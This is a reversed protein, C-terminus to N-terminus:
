FMNKTFKTSTRVRILPRRTLSIHYFRVPKMSRRIVGSRTRFKIDTTREKCPSKKTPSLEEGVIMVEDNRDLYKQVKQLRRFYMIDVACIVLSAISLPAYSVGAV